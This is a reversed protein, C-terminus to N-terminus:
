ALPCRNPKIDLLPTGDLCDLGRVTLVPGDVSVLTVTSIGIPNPRIPSRIAFTGRTQGDNAPSQSVLDRRSEHLWYVIDIRNCHEVGQLAKQWPEFIEILCAPGDAQGQKPCLSLETWPTNIRGIFILGAGSEEPLEVAVENQRIEFDQSLAELEM